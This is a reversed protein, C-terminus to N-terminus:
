MRRIDRCEARFGDRDADNRIAETLRQLLTDLDVASKAERKAIVHAIPGLYAALKAGAAQVQQPTPAGRQDSVRRAAEQRQQLTRLGAQTTDASSGHHMGESLALLAKKFRFRGTVSPIHAELHAELSALDDGQKAYKTVLVRAVPGIEKALHTEVTALMKHTLGSAPATRAAARAPEQALTPPTSEAFPSGPPALSPTSVAREQFVFPAVDASVPRSEVTREAQENPLPLSELAANVDHAPAPLQSEGNVEGTDEGETRQQREIESASWVKIGSSCRVLTQGNPLRADASAANTRGVSRLLTSLRVPQQAM